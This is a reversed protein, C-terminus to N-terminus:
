LELDMMSMDNEWTKWAKKDGMIEVRIGPAETGLQREGAAGTCDGAIARSV